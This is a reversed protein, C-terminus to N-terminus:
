NKSDINTMTRKNGGVVSVNVVTKPKSPNVHTTKLNGEIIAETMEKKTISPKDNLKGDYRLEDSRKSLHKDSLNVGPIKGLTSKLAKSIVESSGDIFKLGMKKINDGYEKNFGNDYMTVTAAREVAKGGRLRATAALFAVDRSLGQMITVQDKIIDKTNMNELQDQYKLILKTQNEDLDKLRIENKGLEERLKGTIQVTMEGDKMQSINTLFKEQDKNLMIGRALLDNHAQQKEAAAIAGQTLSKMDVGLKQSYERAMRLNVGTVEFRKQENNYTALGKSMEILADQIGEVNNTAMYSLKFPDMFDGVAGGLSQLEASLNISDTLDWVKDAVSYVDNMNTRFELTKQVMKSLGDVGNKFGFQNVKEINEGIQQIVTQSRLGLSLSQKGAKGLTTATDVMGYGIKEFDPLYKGLDSMSGIYAKSIEGVKILNERNHLTFKGTNKILDASFDVLDKFGVGMGLLEPNASSLEERFDKSLQGTMGVEQNMTTLLGTQQKLYLGVQDTIMTKTLDELLKKPQTLNTLLSEAVNNVVSLEESMEGFTAGYETSKLVTGLSKFTDALAGGTILLSSANNMVTDNFISSIQKIISNDGQTSPKKVTDYIQKLKNPDYDKFATKFAEFSLNPNKSLFDIPNM